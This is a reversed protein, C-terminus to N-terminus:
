LAGSGVDPLQGSPETSDREFNRQISELICGQVQEWAAIGLQQCLTRLLEGVQSVHSPRTSRLLFSRNFRCRLQMRWATLPQTSISCRWWGETGLGVLGSVAWRVRVERDELLLRCTALM